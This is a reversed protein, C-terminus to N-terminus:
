LESPIANSEIPFPSIEESIPNVVDVCTIGVV